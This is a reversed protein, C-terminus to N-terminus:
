VRFFPLRKPEKFSLLMVGPAASLSKAANFVTFSGTRSSLPSGTM